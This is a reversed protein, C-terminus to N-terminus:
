VGGSQVERDATSPKRRAEFHQDDPMVRRYRHRASWDWVQVIVLFVLWTICVDRRPGTLVSAFFVHPIICAPMGATCGRATSLGVTYVHVSGQKHM